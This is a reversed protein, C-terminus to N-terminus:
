AIWGYYAFWFLGCLCAVIPQFFRWVTIPPIACVLAISISAPVFAFGAFGAADLPARYYTTVDPFCLWLGVAAAVMALAATIYTRFRCRRRVVLLLATLIAPLVLEILVAGINM